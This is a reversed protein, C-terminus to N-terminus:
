EMYSQGRFATPPSWGPPPMRCQNRPESSPLLNMIAKRPYGSWCELSQSEKKTDHSPCWAQANPNLKPGVDHTPLKRSAAPRVRPRRAAEPPNPDYQFITCVWSERHRDEGRLPTSCSSTSSSLMTSVENDTMPVVGENEELVELYEDVLENLHLQDTHDKKTIGTELSPARPFKKERPTICREVSRSRRETSTTSKESIESTSGDLDLSGPGRSPLSMSPSSPQSISSAQPTWQSSEVSEEDDRKWQPQQVYTPIRTHPLPQHRHGRNNNNSNHYGHRNDYGGSQHYQGGHRRHFHRGTM